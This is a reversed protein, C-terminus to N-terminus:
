HSAAAAGGACCAAGPRTVLVQPPPRALVPFPLMPAASQGEAAPRGKSRRRLRPCAFILVVVAWANAQTKFTHRHAANALRNSVCLLCSSFLVPLRGLLTSGLASPCFCDAVPPM